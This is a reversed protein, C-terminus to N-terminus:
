LKVPEVDPSETDPGAGAGIQLVPTFDLPMAAMALNLPPTIM